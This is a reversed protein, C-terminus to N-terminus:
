FDGELVFEEQHPYRLMFNKIAEVMSIFWRDKTKESDQKLLELWIKLEEIDKRNLILIDGDAVQRTEVYEYTLDDEDEENKSFEYRYRVPHDEGVGLEEYIRYMESPQGGLVYKWVYEFEGNIKCEIYRGMVEVKLNLGSWFM